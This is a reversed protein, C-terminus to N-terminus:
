PTFRCRPVQVLKKVPQLGPIPLRFLQTPAFPGLPTGDARYNSWASNGVYLLADPLVVGLSPETADPHRDLVDLRAVATGAANLVLRVVRAPEVGNQIGILTHDGGWYLGDLGLTVLRPDAAVPTVRDSGLDIRYLGTTWDAIWATCGNPDFAIGQLNRWDRHTAPLQALGGALTARFLLPQCSDTAYAAGDPALVVDGLCHPGAGPALWRALLAGSDLRYARLESKGSDAGPGGAQENMASTTVWLIRAVPDVAMGFAAYLPPDGPVTFDTLHGLSDIAVVKRMRISSVFRRGSTPDFAIGEGHQFDAPLTLAVASNALPRLSSDARRALERFQPLNALPAWGSDAPLWDFGMATVIDLAALAERTHGTAAAIRALYRQYAGQRPWAAAANVAATFAVNTDNRAWATRSARYAARAVDASDARQAPGPRAVLVSAILGFLFPHRM